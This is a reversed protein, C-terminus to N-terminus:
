IEDAEIQEVTRCLTAGLIARRRDIERLSSNRRGEAITTLRDIREIYDLAARPLWVLDDISKGSQALLDHILKVAAPEGRGYEQMLEKAKRTMASIVIKELADRDLIAEVKAVADSKNEVFDHALKKAVREGTDKELNDRLFQRLDHEFHERCLDFDLN